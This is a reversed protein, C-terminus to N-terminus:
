AFSESIISAIIGQIVDVKGSPRSAESASVPSAEPPRRIGLARRASTWWKEHGAGEGFKQEDNVYKATTDLKDHGLIYKIQELPAKADYYICACSRRADPPLTKM